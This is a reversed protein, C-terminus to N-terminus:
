QRHTQRLLAEARARAGVPAVPKADIVIQLQAHAADLNGMTILAAALGLRARTEAISPMYVRRERARDLLARWADASGQADHMYVDRAEAIRQLFLPNTPYRRDLSELLAIADAPRNEYWLYVLHLQYDAEGKLLEGQERATTMERLGRQRDGGPLLLFWRLVKAYAPAVDAYYHYLGIGFYADGLTPDLALARELAARIRNGDRAAALRDGRLIRWQVLPAYAGALYFWAEARQPERATWANNGAVAAAAADSFRKDLLRSEPYINIRWWLEVVELAACAGAPAPPCAARLRSEAEDFEASLIADYVAALRPAETLAAVAPQALLTLALLVLPTM